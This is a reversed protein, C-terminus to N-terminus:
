SFSIRWKVKGRRRTARLARSEVFGRQLEDFHCLLFLVLCLMSMGQFSKEVQWIVLLSFLCAVLVSAKPNKSEDAKFAACILIVQLFFFGIAGGSYFTQLYISHLSSIGVLEMYYQSDHMGYGLLWSDAIEEWAKEWITVRNTLTANKGIIDWLWTMENQIGYFQLGIFIAFIALVCALCTEPMKMKRCLSIGIWAAVFVFAGITLSGIHRLVIFYLSSALVLLNWLIWKRLYLICLISICSAFIIVWGAGNDVGLFYYTFDGITRLGGPFALVTFLNIVVFCGFVLSLLLIYKKPEKIMDYSLFIVGFVGLAESGWARLQGGAVATSLLLLMYLVLFLISFLDLRVNKLVAVLAVYLFAAIRMFDVLSIGVGVGSLAYDVYDPPFIFFIALAMSVDYLIGKLFSIKIAWKGM